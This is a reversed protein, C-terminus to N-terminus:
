THGAYCGLLQAATRHLFAIRLILAFYLDEVIRATCPVVVPM